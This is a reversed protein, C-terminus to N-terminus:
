NKGGLSELRQKIIDDIQKIFINKVVKYPCNEGGREAPNKNTDDFKQELHWYTEAWAVFEEGVSLIRPKSDESAQLM